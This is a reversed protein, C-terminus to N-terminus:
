ALRELSALKVCLTFVRLAQELEELPPLTPALRLNRERPDRGYPFTAGAGTLKVGAAQALAVVRSACGDLTDFNVFYGGKPRNWRAVGLGELDETLIRDVLEFKPRLIAAHRKMHAHIGALDKFFRVHRLQNLKDPGITMKSLHARLWAMNDVSGGVVAVGAGAFSIKSTSAFLIVRDPADAQKCVELANLLSPPSDDLHHVTYADDWFLRFDLAAPRLKGLRRVVEDSFTVGTPNGHKPVAWMGKIHTDKAALEEVADMDPGDDKMEVPIMEIGLHECVAFHRDYGPVPCLFKVQGQSQWSGAGGPVGHLLASSVVTHMLALSSNGGVILEEPAVQLLEAFLAKAEPLGDLGGYNRTDTGDAARFSASGVTDLLGSSLDLQESSPKGRTMDLRLGARRYGEYAQQVQAREAQLQTINVESINPM